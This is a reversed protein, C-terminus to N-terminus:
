SPAHIKIAMSSIQTAVDKFIMSATDTPFKVAIPTNQNNALTFNGMMYPMTMRIEIGLIQEAESKSLGELGVARNLITFVRNRAVGQEQLYNWVKKTLKVTSLDTSVVLVVVDAEKIIPLSIRSLARGFDVLTYDYAKTLNDLIEPIRDARLRSGQAPDSAGSLLHFLWNNPVPLNKKFFQPTLEAPDREAVEVLNFEGEYGVISGISGLPLVMDAVAVSSQPMHRALNMGINACLSSTGTGGKASLFVILLGNENLPNAKAADAIIRPISDALTIAGQGSKIFYENFGIKLCHEMEDADSHGSFAVVPIRATHREKRLEQIVEQPGYDHLNTETIIVAPSENNAKQIGDKGDVAHIVSYGRKTLLQAIFHRSPEDTDILLIKIDM